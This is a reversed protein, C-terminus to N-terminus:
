MKPTRQREMNRREAVRKRQLSRSRVLGLDKAHAGHATANRVAFRNEFTIELLFPTVISQSQERLSSRPAPATNEKEDSDCGVVLQLQFGQQGLEFDSATYATPVHMDHRDGLRFGRCPACRGLSARTTSRRELGGRCARQIARSGVVLTWM